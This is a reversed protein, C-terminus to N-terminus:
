VLTELIENQHQNQLLSLYILKIDSGIQSFNLEKCPKIISFRIHGSGYLTTFYERGSCNRLGMLAGPRNEDDVLQDIYQLRLKNYPKTELNVFNWLIPGFRLETDKLIKVILRKIRECARLIWSTRDTGHIVCTGSNYICLYTKLDKFRIVIKGTKEEVSYLRRALAKLDGPRLGLIRFKLVLLGFRIEKFHGVMETKLINMERCTNEPRPRM